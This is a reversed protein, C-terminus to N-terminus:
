ISNTSVASRSDQLNCLLSAVSAFKTTPFMGKALGDHEGVPPQKCCDAVENAPHRPNQTQKSSRNKHSVTFTGDVAGRKEEPNASARPEGGRRDLKDGCAM